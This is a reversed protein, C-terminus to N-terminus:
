HLTQSLSDDPVFPLNLLQVIEGGFHNNEYETFLSPLPTKAVFRYDLLRCARLTNITSLLKDNGNTTEYMKQLCENLKLKTLNIAEDRGAPDNPFLENATKRVCSLEKRNEVYDKLLSLVFHWHDYTTPVLFGDGEQKYCLKAIAVAADEFLALELRIENNNEELMAQLKSRIAPCFDDVDNILQVAQPWFKYLQSAVEQMYFWRIDTTYRKIECNILTRLRLRAENSTNMMNNCKGIFTVAMQCSEYLKKGINSSAHSICKLDICHSYGFLRMLNLAATNTSCGDRVFALIKNRQEKNFFSFSSLADNM